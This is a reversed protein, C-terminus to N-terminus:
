VVSLVADAVPIVVVLRLTVLAEVENRVAILAVVVLRTVVFEDEVLLVLVLEKIADSTAVKAEIVLKITPFEVVVLAKTVLRVAVLLVLVLEKIADSTAVRAEIVLKITPFELVVTADTPVRVPPDIVAVVDSVELPVSLTVPWVVRALAEAVASM